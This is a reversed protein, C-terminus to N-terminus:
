HSLVVGALQYSVVRYLIAIRQGFVIVEETM